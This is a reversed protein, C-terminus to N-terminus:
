LKSCLADVYAQLTITGRIPNDPMEFNGDVSVGTMRAYSKAAPESFGLQRYTSEWQSRPTVLPNVPKGLASAFAHAVDTSSYREPGEVFRIGTHRAPEVLLRAAVRGLDAPAVMPIRLDAPFMTPLTGSERASAAMMDWSSMYYAARIVSHPIPQAGLGQELEHLTNLDGLHDGAQAGYTSEAVVKELGSGDLAALLHRVTEKEVCDTDTDPAAPPNLLFLRRGLRFVDRITAIDHVDAVAVEAGLARLNGAKEADRTVVTVAEGQELLTRATASGVHGTAGLIVFM